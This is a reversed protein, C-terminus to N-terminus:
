RPKRRKRGRAEPPLIQPGASAEAKDGLDRVPLRSCRHALFRAAATFHNPRCPCRTPMRRALARPQASGARKVAERDFDRPGFDVSLSGGINHATSTSSRACSTIHGGGRRLSKFKRLFGFRVDTRLIAKSWPCWAFWGSTHSQPDHNRISIQSTRRRPTNPAQSGNHGPGYWTITNGRATDFDCSM